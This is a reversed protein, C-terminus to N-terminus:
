FSLTGTGSVGDKEILPLLDMSCQGDAGRQAKARGDGQGSFSGSAGAFLGTGGEVTSTQHSLFTGLCSRPDITLSFDLGVSVLHISGDAFVIDDRLVNPPDTPLNPVEVLRGVGDFVGRLRLHSTLVVREGSQGTAMVFGVFSESGTTQAFAPTWPGAVLIGTAAVLASVTTRMIRRM